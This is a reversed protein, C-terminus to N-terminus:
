FCVVRGAVDVVYILDLDYEEMFSPYLNMEVFAPDGTQVFSWMTDWSGWDHVFTDLHEVENALADVPRYLDKKALELELADFSPSIAHQLVLAQLWALLAVVVLLTLSVRTKISM